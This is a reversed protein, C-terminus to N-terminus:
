AGFSKLWADVAPLAVTTSWDVFFVGSAALCVYVPARMGLRVARILVGVTLFSFALYIGLDSVIALFRLPHDEAQLAMRSVSYGTVLWLVWPLGLLGVTMSLLLGFRVGVLRRSIGPPACLEFTIFLAFFAAVILFFPKDYTFTVLLAGTCAVGAIFWAADPKEPPARRWWRYAILTLSPIVVLLTFSLFLHDVPFEFPFLGLLAAWVARSVDSYALVMRELYPGFALEKDIQSLVGFATPVSVFIMLWEKWPVIEFGPRPAPVTLSADTASGVPAGGTGPPVRRVSRKRKPKPSPEVAGDAAM